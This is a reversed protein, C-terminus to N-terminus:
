GALGSCWLEHLGLPVVLWFLLRLFLLCGNNFGPIGRSCSGCVEHQEQACCALMLLALLACSCCLSYLWARSGPRAVGCDM